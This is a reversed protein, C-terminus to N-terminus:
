LGVSLVPPTGARQFRICNKIANRPPAWRSRTGLSVCMVISTRTLRLVLGTKARVIPQDSLACAGYGCALRLFSLASSSTLNPPQQQGKGHTKRALSSGIVLMHSISATIGVSETVSALQSRICSSLTPSIATVQGKKEARAALSGESSCLHSRPLHM